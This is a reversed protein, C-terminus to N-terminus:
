AARRAVPQMTPKGDVMVLELQPAAGTDEAPDAKGKVIKWIYTEPEGTGSARMTTIISLAEVEGKAKILAGLAAGVSKKDSGARELMPRGSAFIQAKITLPEATESAGADSAKAESTEGIPSNTKSKSQCTEPTANAIANALAREKDKLAKAAGGKSGNETNKGVKKIVKELTKTVRKQTIRGDEVDFYGALKDWVKGWKSPRVRAIRCLTEHDLPLTGKSGWLAYLLAHYAGFAEANLGQTDRLIDGVNV